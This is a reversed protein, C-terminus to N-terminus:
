QQRPVLLSKPHGNSVERPAQRGHAASSQRTWCVCPLGALFRPAGEDSSAHCRALPLLELAATAARHGDNNHRQDGRADFRDVRVCYCDLVVRVRLRDVLALQVPGASGEEPRSVVEDLERRLVTRWRADRADCRGQRCAALAAMEGDNHRVPEKRRHRLAVMGDSM